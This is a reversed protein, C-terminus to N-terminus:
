ELNKETKTPKRNNKIKIASDSQGHIYIIYVETEPFM